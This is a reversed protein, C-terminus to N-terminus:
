DCDLTMSRQPWSQMAETESQIGFNNYKKFDARQSTVHPESLEGLNTVESGPLGSQSRTLEPGEYVHPRDLVSLNSAANKM